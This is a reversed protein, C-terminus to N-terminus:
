KALESLAFRLTGILSACQVPHKQSFYYLLIKFQDFPEQILM